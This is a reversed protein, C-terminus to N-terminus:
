LREGSHVVAAAWLLKLGSESQKLTLLRVLTCGTSGDESLKPPGIPCEQILGDVREQDCQVIRILADHLRGQNRQAVPGASTRDVRNKWEDIVRGGLDSVAGRICQHGV